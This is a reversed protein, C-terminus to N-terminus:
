TSGRRVAQDGGPWFRRGGTSDRLYALRANTTGIIVFQRPLTTALRAYALRVPGDVQRSLFSKLQEAERGRNGHLEAAEIIWKGATREIVLKSDVGLPLDDSFWDDDPCLLRLASSKLTGQRSELILLEDFKCGPRRVRRVAAILVLAGVADVYESPIAGAYTVLWRDLRPTGDWRLADLYARVPHEPRAHAEGVIVTHLTNKSPRFHFTDDIALWLRDLAVDDAPHGDWLIERRFADYVPRVHLHALALRINDLAHDLIAGNKNRIFDDRLRSRPMVPPESGFIEDVSPDTRLWTV